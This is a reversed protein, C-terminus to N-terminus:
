QIARILDGDLTVEINVNRILTVAAPWTLTCNFNIQSNILVPYCLAFLARSDPVGNQGFSAAGGAILVNDVALNGSPGGGAPLLSLPYIGYDKQGINFTLVGTAILLQIDNLSDPQVAGGAATATSEPRNKFYVRIARVLFSEPAPLQGSVRMNSLDITARTNNFFILQTTATSTYLLSDWLAADIREKGGQVFQSNYQAYQQLSMM